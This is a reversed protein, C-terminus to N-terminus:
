PTCKVCSYQSKSCGQYMTCIPRSYCGPPPMCAPGPDSIPVPAKEIKVTLPGPEEDDFREKAEVGMRRFDKMDSKLVRYTVSRVDGIQPTTRTAAALAECDINTVNTICGIEDLLAGEQVELLHVQVVQLYRWASTPDPLGEIRFTVDFGPSTQARSVQPGFALISVIALCLAASRMTKM